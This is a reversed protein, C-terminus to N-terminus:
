PWGPEAVVDYADIGAQDLANIVILAARGKDDIADLDALEPDLPGRAAPLISLYLAKFMKYMDFSTIAENVLGMRRVGEAKLERIKEDRSDELLEAANKTRVNDTDWVHPRPPMPVTALVYGDPIGNSIDANHIEITGEKVIYPM